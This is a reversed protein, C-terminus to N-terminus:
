AVAAPDPRDNGFGEWRRGFSARASGPGGILGSGPGSERYRDPPRPKCPRCPTRGAFRTDSPSVGERREQKGQRPTGRRRRGVRTAPRGPLDFRVISKSAEPAGRGPSSISAGIVLRGGEGLEWFDHAEERGRAPLDVKARPGNRGFHGGELREERRELAPGRVGAWRRGECASGAREAM